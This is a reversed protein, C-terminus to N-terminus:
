EIWVGSSCIREWKNRDKKLLTFEGGYRAELYFIAYKGNNFIIPFTMFITNSKGKSKIIVSKNKILSNDIKVSKLEKLRRRIFKYDSDKLINSKDISKDCFSVDLLGPKIYDSLVFDGNINNLTRYYIHNNVPRGSITNLIRYAEKDNETMSKSAICSSLFLFTALFPFLVRLKSIM